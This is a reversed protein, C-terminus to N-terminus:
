FSRGGGSHSNGSSSTHSGGSGFFSGSDNDQARRTRSINSYLFYDENRTLKLSGPVEYDAASEKKRVSKLGRKLFSVTIFALVIGLLVPILITTKWNGLFVSFRVNAPLGSDLDGGYSYGNRGADVRSEAESIFTKVVSAYNGAKLDSYFVDIINQADNYDFYKTGEGCGSIYVVRPDMSIILAVGSDDDGYGFGNYDFYDDSFAVIDKGGTSKVTAAVFDFQYLESLSDLSSLLEKEDAADILNAEDVLRPVQRTEPKKAAAFGLFSVSLALMLVAALFALFRKKM